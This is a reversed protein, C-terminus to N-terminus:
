GSGAPPVALIDIKLSSMLDHAVSGLFLRKVGSLGRTGIVLLDPRAQEVFGAIAEAGIGEILRASYDLDGLDLGEIFQGADRRTSQFEREAEEQVREAPIGAHAMMHRTIPAYAHVFTVDADELLGLAHAEQAAHGSTESLDTAIVIRRWPGPAESNVMLVARGATRTVREITTGVFVDRLYQRRHAGMVILDAESARAEEDIVRFAHGAAVMVECDISGDFEAVQAKLHDEAKHTEEYMRDGLLDDEVVHLVRLKAGFAEALQVARRVAPKSRSSLDSAALISNLGALARVPPAESM